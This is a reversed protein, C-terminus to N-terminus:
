YVQKERGLYALGVDQAANPQYMFEENIPTHCVMDADMWFLVDADCNAAATFCQIPKTVSDLLTGVFGLVQHKAKAIQLVLPLWAVHEPIAAGVNNSPWL